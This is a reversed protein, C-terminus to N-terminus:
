DRFEQSYKRKMRHAVLVLESLYPAKSNEFSPETSQLDQSEKDDM